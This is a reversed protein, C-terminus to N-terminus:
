EDQGREPLEYKTFGSNLVEEFAEQLRLFALMDHNLIMETDPLGYEVAKQLAEFGAETNEMVSYACAMHFYIEPDKPAIKLAQHLEESEDVLVLFFKADVVQKKSKAAM